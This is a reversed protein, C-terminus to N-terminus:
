FDSLRASSSDDHKISLAKHERLRQHSKLPDVRFNSTGSILLSSKDALSPFERCTQNFMVGKEEDHCGHGNQKGSHFFCVNESRIMSRTKPRFRMQLLQGM